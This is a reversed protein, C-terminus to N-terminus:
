LLYNQVMDWLVGFGDYYGVCDGVGYYEFVIIQIYDIVICNWLLEFLLNVFWFVMLNQVIEKGFYYDIWYISEEKFIVGVGENIECVLVFDIGILKELVIWMNGDSFGVKGFVQCILVYIKLIVVLYIILFWVFDVIFYFKFDVWDVDFNIVDMIVYYFYKEFKKWEFKKLSDVLVEICVEFVFVCFVVDDM